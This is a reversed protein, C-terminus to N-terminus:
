TRPWSTDGDEWQGEANRRRHNVAVGFSALPKGANTYRLEPARTSNGTITTTTDSM